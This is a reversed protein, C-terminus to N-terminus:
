TTAKLDRLQDWGSLRRSGNSVAGGPELLRAGQGAVIQGIRTVRVGIKRALASDSLRPPTCFLLEYDDGGNLAVEPDDGKVMRYAPSLPISEAEIEAGVGSRDLVHGLDQWLGDSLDIAAPLPSIRALRQGAELRATPKVFRDILFKRRAGRAQVQGQLIQLGLAADGITGTVYIADGAHARDRRMVGDRVEGLLTITISLQDARTINGGVIDVGADRAARRVGAYLRDFFAANLGERIAVNIVCATPNAGMAAVDSLNVILARAGLADPTTWALKFHVGEVMSDITIVQKRRSPALVACDDGVGLLTRPSRPLNACLREILDFERLPNIPAAALSRNDIRCGGGGAAGFSESSDARRQGRLIM